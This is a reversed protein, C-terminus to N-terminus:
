PATGLPADAFPQTLGLRRHALHYVAQDILLAVHEDHLAYSVNRGHRTPTVLGLDRLVRLQHSVASQEMTLLDALDTVGIPGDRLIALIRVRSATALASMIRAILEASDEDIAHPPGTTRHGM